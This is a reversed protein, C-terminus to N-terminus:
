GGSSPGVRPGSAIQAALAPAYDALAERWGRLVIGKETGRRNRLTSDPPRKAPLPYRSLFTETSVPHVSGPDFGALEATARALEYRSASGENVLHFVGGERVAALQILAQALDAAFTPSGFEDAVVEISGRDRLVTVVTRPFHKGAGGYLWATRAVAFSRDAAFVAQESERKSQGYASIPATPADEAYPAGGNGPFVMDTSVAVLHAGIDRAAEAVNSTARANSQEGRAPDREIGDVDTCAAAHVIVEPAAGTIARRAAAQDALDADVDIGDGPRSGLAIITAGSQRLAPVLYTGLQGAAGTVLVRQGRLDAPGPKEGVM